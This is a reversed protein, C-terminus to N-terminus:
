KKALTSQSPTEGAAHTKKQATDVFYAGGAFFRKDVFKEIEKDTLRHKTYFPDKM